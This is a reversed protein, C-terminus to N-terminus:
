REGQSEEEPKHNRIYKMVASEYDALALEKNLYTYVNITRQRNEPPSLAPVEKVLEPDILAEILSVDWMVWERSGPFKQDWRNVLFDWGPGQGKML